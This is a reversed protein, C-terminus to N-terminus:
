ALLQFPHLADHSLDHLPAYIEEERLRKPPLQSTQLENSTYVYWPGDPRIRRRKKQNPDEEEVVAADDEDDDVRRRAVKRFHAFALYGIGLGIPIPYWEIKTKSLAERLRQAFSARQQKKTGAGGAGGAGAGAGTGGGGANSSYTRSTTRSSFPFLPRRYLFPTGRLLSTSTSLRRPKVDPPTATAPTSNRRARSFFRRALRHRLQNRLPPPPVPM